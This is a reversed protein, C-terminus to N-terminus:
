LPPRLTTCWSSVFEISPALTWAAGIDPADKLSACDLLRPIILGRSRLSNKDIPAASDITRNLLAAAVGAGNVGVWTGQGLPDVPFIAIRHPLHHVAPLLAPARDRREDRNCALRFGDGTPVLTVTCM